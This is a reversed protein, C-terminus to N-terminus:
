NENAKKKKKKGKLQKSREKDVVGSRFYVSVWSWHILSTSHVTDKACTMVQTCKGLWAQPAPTTPRAWHLRWLWWGPIAPVGLENSFFGISFCIFYFLGNWFLIFCGAAEKSRGPLTLCGSVQHVPSTPLEFCKMNRLSAFRQWRM